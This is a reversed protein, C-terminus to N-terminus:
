PVTLKYMIFFDRAKKPSHMLMGRKISYFIGIVYHNGSLFQSIIRLLAGICTTRKKIIRRFYKGSDSFGKGM